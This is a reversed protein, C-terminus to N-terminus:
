QVHGGPPQVADGLLDYGKIVNGFDISSTTVGRLANVRVESGLVGFGGAYVEYLATGSFTASGGASGENPWSNTGLDWGGNRFHAVAGAPLSSSVAGTRTELSEEERPVTGFASARVAAALVLLKHLM